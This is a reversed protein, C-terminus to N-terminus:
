QKEKKKKREETAIEKAKKLEEYNYVEPQYLDKKTYKRKKEIIFSNTNQPIPKFLLNIPAESSSESTSSTTSSESM